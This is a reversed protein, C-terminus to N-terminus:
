SERERDREHDAQRDRLHDVAPRDVVLQALRRRRSDVFRRVLDRAGVVCLDGRRLLVDRRCLGSLRAKLSLDRVAAEEGVALCTERAARLGV